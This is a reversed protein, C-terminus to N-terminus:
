QGGNNTDQIFGELCDEGKKQQRISKKSIKKKRPYKEVLRKTKKCLLKCDQKNNFGFREFQFPQVLVPFDKKADFRM